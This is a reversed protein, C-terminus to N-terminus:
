RPGSIHTGPNLCVSRLTSAALPPSHGRPYNCVCDVPLQVWEARGRWYSLPCVHKAPLWLVHVWVSARFPIFSDSLTGESRVNKHYDLRILHHLEVLLENFLSESCTARILPGIAIAQLKQM